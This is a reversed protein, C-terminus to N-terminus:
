QKLIVAKFLKDLGYDTVAVVAGFVLSFMIVAFTLQRTQTRNPWTVQRLERWSNRIYPPAIVYGLARIPKFNGLPRVMRGILRFPTGIIRGARNRRSPQDAKAQARESQERVSVPAAARLRRKPTATSESQTDAKKDAM